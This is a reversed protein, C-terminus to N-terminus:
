PSYHSHETRKTPIPPSTIIVDISNPKIVKLIERADARHVVAHTNKFQSLQCLDKAMRDIKHLWTAVVPVDEKPEGVGVEPGFQLNSISFTLANAFALLQHKYYPQHQRRRLSDRLVLIKHLPLPSVSNALLLKEIDPELTRLKVPQCITARGGVFCLIM